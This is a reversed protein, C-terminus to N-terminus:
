LFSSCLISLKTITMNHQDSRLVIFGRFLFRMHQVGNVAGHHEFNLLLADASGAQLGFVVANGELREVIDTLAKIASIVRGGAAPGSSPCELGTHRNSIPGLAFYACTGFEDVVSEDFIFSPAPLAEQM